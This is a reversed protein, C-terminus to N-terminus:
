VLDEIYFSNVFILYFFRKDKKEGEKKVQKEEKPWLNQEALRVQFQFINEFLFKSM